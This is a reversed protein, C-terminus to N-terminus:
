VQADNLEQASALLYARDEDLAKIIRDFCSAARQKTWTSPWSKPIAHVTNEFYQIQLNHRWWSLRSCASELVLDPNVHLSETTKMILNEVIDASVLMRTITDQINSVRHIEQKKQHLQEIQVDLEELQRKRLAKSSEIKGRYEKIRAQMNYMNGTIGSDAHERDDSM